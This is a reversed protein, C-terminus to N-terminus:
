NVRDCDCLRATTFSPSVGLTLSELGWMGIVVERFQDSAGRVVRVRWRRWRLFERGKMRKEESPSAASKSTLPLLQVRATTGVAGSRLPPTHCLHLFVSSLFCASQGQARTLGPLLESIRPGRVECATLSM